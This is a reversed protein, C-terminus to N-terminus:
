RSQHQLAGLTLTPDSQKILSLLLMACGYADELAQHQDSVPLRHRHLCNPLRLGEQSIVTGRQSLRYWEIQMTDIFRFRPALGFCRQCAMRLFRSELQSHHAVFIYGAYRQLLETLIDPLEHANILHKDHVGHFVASQGVSVPTNILYHRAEALVIQQRRVPVWGISVIYDRKENLGTLEMDLVLFPCETALTQAAPVAEDNFLRVTEHIVQPKRSLWQLM